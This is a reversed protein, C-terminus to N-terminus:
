EKALNKLIEEINSSDKTEQSVKMNVSPFASNRSEPVPRFNPKIERTGYLIKKPKTAPLKLLSEGKRTLSWVKYSESIEGKTEMARIITNVVGRFDRASTQIGGTLLFETLQTLALPERTLSLVELIAYRISINRFREPSISNLSTNSTASQGNFQLENPSSGAITRGHDTPQGATMPNPTLDKLIMVM